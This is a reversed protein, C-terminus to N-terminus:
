TLGRLREARLEAIVNINDVIIGCIGRSIASRASELNNLEKGYSLFQLGTTTGVSSFDTDCSFLHKSDMVIGSIGLRLVFKIAVDMSNCITERSKGGDGKTLFFIPYSHTVVSLALVIQPHFSSFYIKEKGSACVVELIKEVYTKPHVYVYGPISNLEDICPYKIEINVGVDGAVDLATELTLLRLDDKKKPNFALLHAEKVEECTLSSVPRKKGKYEITFDHLVVPVDDKSLHVDIEVWDAGGRIAKKIALETNEVYEDDKYTSNDGAGRHGVLHVVDTTVGCRRVSFQSHEFIVDKMDVVEQVGMETDVAINCLEFLQDIAVFVFFCNMLKIMPYRELYDAGRSSVLTVYVEDANSLRRYSTDLSIGVVRTGTESEGKRARYM